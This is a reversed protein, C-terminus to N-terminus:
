VLKNLYAETKKHRLSYRISRDLLAPTIDVKDIVDYIGLQIASQTLEDNVEGSFLIFAPSDESQFLERVLELGDYGGLKYDLLCLDINQQQILDKADNFSTVTHIQYTGSKGNVTKLVSKISLLDVENDDVVLIDFCENSATFNVAMIDKLEAYSNALNTKLIQIQSTDTLSIVCGQATNSKDMYPALKILMHSNNLTSIEKEITIEDNIVSSIEKLLGDYKLSHSIHHFPRGIDSEILNIHQKAIPSFRRIVMADDLFIFGIDASKIINEIDLNVKTTEEIQEQYESNVSYLEENVSQLEENTSQLEENSAMLEENTSQLEENTTELEEITASLHYQNHRLAEELDNIRHQPEVHGDYSVGIAKHPASITAPSLGIAVYTPSNKTGPVYLAVLDVAVETGNISQFQIDKFRVAEKLKVAKHIATTVAMALGELLYDGIKASFRGQQLPKTYPQLDGYLHIVELQESMVVCAPIFDNILAELAPMHSIEKPQQYHSLIREISPPSKRDRNNRNAPITFLDNVRHIIQDKQYIRFRENIPKFNKQFDGLTESNGLFLYGDKRLAFQMMSLVNQQAKTQFYIMLNRCVVLQCNSFPPDKLLNHNAFVVLHRLESSVTYGDESQIFYRELREANVDTAINISFTGASAEKIANADVDSAFIKIEHGSKRRQREEDFLMAISYAEEGSSCGATWVRIMENSPTNDFINPIVHHQLCDFAEVDRFFHTVGILMEKTLTKAEQPHAILLKAYDSLVEIDHIRMRREIRRKVTNPKYLGFDIDHHELLHTYIKTLVNDDFQSIIPDGSKKPSKGLSLVKVLYTPIDAACMVADVLETQIACLPMGDFQAEEPDQVITLGGAEKVDKIGRSGDSGTGSLIVAVSRHQAAAAVSRFFVDIPFNSGQHPVQDVLILKGEAMLMNTRPPMLYITNVEIEIGDTVTCIKLDTRRQLLQDMLSDFDPSLHQVIMYAMPANKPLASVFENLAELGGASAGVAVCFLPETKNTSTANETTIINSM